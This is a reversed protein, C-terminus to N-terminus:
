ERGLHITLCRGCFLYLGYSCLLLDTREQLCACMIWRRDGDDAPEWDRRSVDLAQAPVLLVLLDFAVVSGGVVAVTPLPGYGIQDGHLVGSWYLSLRQWQRRNLGLIRVTGQDELLWRAREFLDDAM